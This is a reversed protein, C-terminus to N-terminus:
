LKGFINKLVYNKEQTMEDLTRSVGERGIGSKKYGGFALEPPRYDTGGNIVVTATELREAISLALKSNESFVAGSLGYRSQNAVQVAEEASEISVISFVPGFIELDKAVDMEPTIHTLVTPEYFAGNRHGGFPCVAGQEVTHAVQAEVERAAKESILCGMTTDPAKPDGMKVQRLATILKDVFADMCNKHILFRKSGCCVQGAYLLRSMMAEKVALDLDADEMVIFADNAGLELFVRTLNAAVKQYISLGTSESGTMSLANLGPHTVLYDGAAGSGRGVVVQVVQEPVGAKYLCDTLRILTLPCDTPPKIVATNGTIIAPILKHAFMAIPFNFPIICGFVGIPERRTFVVDNQNGLVENGRPLCNGYMHNARECYAKTILLCANLESHAEGLPKGTEDSLLWALDDKEQEVCCIFQELIQSRNLQSRGAWERFAYKAAAVAADIDRETMNPISDIVAGTAPNLVPIMEREETLDLGNLKITM